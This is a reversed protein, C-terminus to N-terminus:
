PTAVSEYGLDALVTDYYHKSTDEADKLQVNRVFFADACLEQRFPASM